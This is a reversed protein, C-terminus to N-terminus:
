GDRRLFRSGVALLDTVGGLLERGARLGGARRASEENLGFLGATQQAGLAALAERRVALEGEFLAEQRELEGQAAVDMLIDISSGESIVGGSAGTAARIAGLRIRSLRDVKAAEGRAQSRAIEANQKHIQVQQLAINANFRAAAVNAATEQQAGRVGLFTSAVSGALSAAGALGGLSALFGGGGAAVSAAAPAAAAVGAPIALLPLPM